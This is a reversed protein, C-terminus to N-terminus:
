MRTKELYTEIAFSYNLKFQTESDDLDLGTLSVIKQRRYSLSNRHLYLETATLNQNFGNKVYCRLTDYLQTSNDNDFERLTALAPHCYFAVNM